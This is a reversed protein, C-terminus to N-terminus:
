PDAVTAAPRPPPVSRPPYLLEDIVAPPGRRPQAEGPPRNRRGMEREVAIRRWSECAQFARLEGLQAVSAAAVEAMFALDAEHEGGLEGAALSAYDVALTRLKAADYTRVGDVLTAGAWDLRYTGHVSTDPDTALLHEFADDVAAPATPDDNALRGLSGAVAMIAAYLTPNKM